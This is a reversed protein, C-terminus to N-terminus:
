HQAFRLLFRSAFSRTLINFFFNQSSAESRAKQKAESLLLFTSLKNVIKYASTLM